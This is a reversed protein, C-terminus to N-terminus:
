KREYLRMLTNGKMYVVLFSYFVVAVCCIIWALTLHTGYELGIFKFVIQVIYIFTFHSFYIITSMKRLNISIESNISLRLNLITIFLIVSVLLKMSQLVINKGCMFYVFIYICYSIVFYLKRHRAFLNIFNAGRIALVIGILFYAGWWLFNLETLFVDFYATQIRDFLYVKDKLQECLSPILTLLTGIITYTAIHKKNGGIYLILLLILVTQIYWLGGGPSSVIWLKLQYTIIKLPTNSHRIINLACTITFYWIGWILYPYLLRLAYQTILNKYETTNKSRGIKKGLFYGSCIFFFPVAFTFICYSCFNYFKINIDKFANTHIAVVMIAAVFKASDLAVNTKRKNM